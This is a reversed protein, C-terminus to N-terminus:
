PRVACMGTEPGLEVTAGVGTPAMTADAGV